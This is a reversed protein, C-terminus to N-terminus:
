RCTSLFHEGKKSLGYINCGLAPIEVIDILNKSKLTDFTDKRFKYSNQDVDDFGYELPNEFEFIKGGLALELLIRKQYSTLHCASLVRNADNGTDHTNLTEAMYNLNKTFQYIQENYDGISAYPM